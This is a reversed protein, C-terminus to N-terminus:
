QTPLGGSKKDVENFCRAEKLHGAAARYMSCMYEYHDQLHRLARALTRDKYTAIWPSRLGFGSSKVEYNIVTGMGDSERRIVFLTSTRNFGASKIGIAELYRGDKSTPKRVTWTYGPMIELVEKRFASIKDHIETAM